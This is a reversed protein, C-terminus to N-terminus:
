IGALNDSSVLCIASVPWGNEQGSMAPCSCGPLTPGLSFINWALVFWTPVGENIEENNNQYWSILHSKKFDRKYKVHAVAASSRHCKGFIFTINSLCDTHPHKQIGPFIVSRSFTAFDGKAWLPVTM